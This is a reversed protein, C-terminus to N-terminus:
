KFSYTAGVKFYRGVAGSADMPNFSMGGYTLPDLPAIKDFMNAV